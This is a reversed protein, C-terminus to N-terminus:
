KRDWLTGFAVLIFSGVIAFVFVIGTDLTLADERMEIERLSRGAMVFGGTMGNIHTVVIASRVGPRAQWTVRDEGNNRAAAFIGSPLSPLANELYGNGAVSKGTEDYVVVYPALSGAIDIKGSPIITSSPTGASLAAADDEAMQIQPDNATQRYSQQVTLYSLGCFCCIVFAIPLWRRFINILPM